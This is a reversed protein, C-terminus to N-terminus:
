KAFQETQNLPNEVSDYAICSGDAFTIDFKRNDVSLFYGQIVLKDEAGEIMITLDNGNTKCATISNKDIGEGFSIRNIGENDHITDTGSGIHFVYTDDGLGGELYDNGEEGDLTDNGAYGLIRDDGIGGYLYDDSNAGNITDTGDCGYIIFRGDDFGQMYESEATGYITRLPSSADTAHIIVGDFSLCFNRNAEGTYFNEIIIKDATDDNLGEEGSGDLVITLNNWNTRYARVDSITYGSIEILNDGESDSITDTGYGSRYIYIDDGFGGNLYDTGSGGDLIDDGDKGLIRNNGAGGILVDDSDSGTLQDDGDSSVITIGDEYISPIYETGANDNLTKLISDEDTAYFAAGDAFIFKFNRANEDICYNKITISDEIGEFTILLDNWNNKYAKIDKSLIGDGLIVTNRGDSDMINDNGDGVNFYYTDNGASGDMFDAGRGGIMIDDGNGGCIYDNDTGGAIFDNGDEGLLQNTGEGGWIVDAGDGAQIRDADMDGFIIDTNNGGVIYDYEGGTAIMHKIEDAFVADSADSGVLYKINETNLDEPVDDVIIDKINIINDGICINYNDANSVYESIVLKDETDHITVVAENCVKFVTIDDISLKEDLKITSIGECDEIIDTGYGSGFIYTDDGSGGFLFDDGVEGDLIDNGAEGYIIDDGAGGSLIDNDNGGFITDNGTDAVINDDGDNGYIIDNGKSGKVIDNGAFANMISNDLVAKLEDDSADGIIHRFPSAEDTCHMTKDKFELTFDSLEESVCFDKLVLTDNTGKIMVTADNEGTGNVLIDKAAIDRFRITNSGGSDIITDNGYGKAFVYIDNGDEDKLTDNGAGGDLVDDGSGGLIIDNGSGGNLVDNGGKGLIFDNIGTGEYSDDEDSGIYTNGAKTMEVIDAYHSSVSSYYKGYEDYYDTHNISDYSKLCIGLDYVVSDIDDGNTMKLELVYNLYSMDMIKNGNDDTYEYVSKLYGGLGSYLNLITYYNDEISSFIEGLIAAANVNPNTGDVGVFARGMFEEIVKLDRADINGGRSDPVIDNADTIFYLIEKLYARKLAIDTEESFKCVLNFLEGTEDDAIAQSINPINGVTVTTGHTTDSLNVPFWFESIDAQSVTGEINMKVKATEAIRTGTEEDVVSQEVHKLSISIIHYQELAALEDTESIGNHNKDTWILLKDFIEDQSDIIDDANEDYEALAEFGSSSKSGNKLIVQDGFLEGGNDIRGNDNRDLALFGDETDIWATREAFGNNDLDFYVGNELSHLQIGAAGLDLILPDSPPQADGAKEYAEAEGQIEKILAQLLEEDESLLYNELEELIEEGGYVELALKFDEVATNIKDNDIEAANTMIPNVAIIFAASAAVIAASLSNSTHPNENIKAHQTGWAAAIAALALVEPLDIDTNTTYVPIPIPPNLIEGTAKEKSPLRVPVEVPKTETNPERKDVQREFSYFILGDGANTYTITYTVYETYGVHVVPKSLIVEGGEIQMGGTKFTTQDSLVYNALQARAISRKPETSYSYPKVEWLYTFTDNGKMWLDARGTKGELKGNDKSYKITLEKEVLGDNKSCIDTQVANHFSNWYWHDVFVATAWDGASNSSLADAAAEATKEAESQITGAISGAIDDDGSAFVPVPPIVSLTVAFILLYAIWKKLSIKLKM